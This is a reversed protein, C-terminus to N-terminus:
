QVFQHVPLLEVATIGLKVLHEIAAPHGLGAYTGRIEPPVGPHRRTFGKVHCEYIITENLPRRPSRDGAWDFYPNLVLSRQVFPASDAFNPDDPVKPDYPFVAQNWTIHGDIARAYPDLLLKSPNCRVGRAPAWEGYVRYGYRTGPAVDPLYAHWCFADVEPLTIRTEHGDDFLCLEVRDAVESYVAFNTGAGDFLAGLPYPQGPSVKM